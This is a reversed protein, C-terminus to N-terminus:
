KGVAPIEIKIATGDRNSEIEFTGNLRQIRERIGIIGFRQSQNVAGGQGNDTIRLSIAGDKIKASIDLQNAKSHASVNKLIEACIRIVENTVHPALSILESKIEITNVRRLDFIEKRIREIIESTQFRLSRLGARTILPTQPQGLLTDLSYGMAVLDQAIGDHLEQALRVRESTSM